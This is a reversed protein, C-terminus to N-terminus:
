INIRNFRLLGIIFPVVIWLASSLIVLPLNVYSSTPALGYEVYLYYDGFNLAGLPNFYSTLYYIQDIMDLGGTVYAIINAIILMGILFFLYLFISIGLVAGASRIFSPLMYVLSFFGILAVATSLFLLIPIGIPLSVGSSSLLISLLAYPIFALLFSSVVATLVGGLYRSVYLQTRTVPRALLFKLAGSDRPRAFLVYALYMMIAPFIFSFGGISRLLGDVLSSIASGYPYYEFGVINPSSNLKILMLKASSPAEVHYFNFYSTVEGVYTLNASSKSIGSYSYSDSFGVYIKQNEPKNTVFILTGNGNNNVLVFASGGFGIGVASLYKSGNVFVPFPEFEIRQGNYSVTIPESFNFPLTIQFYGSSNSSYLSGKAEIVANAIPNGHNDFVYGIVNLSGGKQISVGIVNLNQYYYPKSAVETVYTQYSIAVGLLGFLIIFVTVSLRLFARKFDYFFNM